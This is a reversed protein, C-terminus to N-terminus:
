KRKRLLLGGLGLVAMTAPEPIVLSASPQSALEFGDSVKYLNVVGAVPVFGTMVKTGAAVSWTQGYSGIFGVPGAPFGFDTGDGLLGSADPASATLAGGTVGTILFYGGSADTGNSMGAPMVIGVTAGENVLEISSVISANALSAMGLVLMLVILKRM